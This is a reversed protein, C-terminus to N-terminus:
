TKDGKHKNRRKSPPIHAKHQGGHARRKVWLVVGRPMDVNRQIAIFVCDDYSWENVALGINVHDLAERANSAVVLACGNAVVQHRVLYLSRWDNEAAKDEAIARRQAETLNDLIAM